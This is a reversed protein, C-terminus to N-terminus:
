PIFINMYHNVLNKLLSLDDNIEDKKISFNLKLPLLTELNLKLPLLTEIFQKKKAILLFGNVVPNSDVHSQKM